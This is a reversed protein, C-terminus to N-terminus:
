SVAKSLRNLARKYCFAVRAVFQVKKMPELVQFHFNFVKSNEAVAGSPVLILLTGPIQADFPHPHVACTRSQARESALDPKVLLNM